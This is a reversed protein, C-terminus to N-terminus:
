CDIEFSCWKRGDLVRKLKGELINKCRASRIEVFMEWGGVGKQKKEKTDFVLIELSDKFLMTKKQPPPSNRDLSQLCFMHLSIEVVDIVFFFLLECHGM